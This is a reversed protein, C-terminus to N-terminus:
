KNNIKSSLNFLVLLSPTKVAPLLSMSSLSFIFRSGLRTEVVPEDGGNDDIEVDNVEDEDEDGDDEDM